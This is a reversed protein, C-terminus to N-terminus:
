RRRGSDGSEASDGRHYPLDPSKYQFRKNESASFGAMIPTLASAVGFVKYLTGMEDPSMLRTYDFQLRTIGEETECLEALQKFRERIGLEALFFAQPVVSFPIVENCVVPESLTSVEGSEPPPAPDERRNLAQANVFEVARLLADFDVDATVDALGPSALLPEFKHNRIARASLRAPAADSSYDIVVAAGGFPSSRICEAVRMMTMVAEPCIELVAEDGTRGAQSSISSEAAREAAPKFVADELYINSLTRAPAQTMQLSGVADEDQKSVHATETAADTVSVSPSSQDTREAKAEPVVSVLIERWHRVPESPHAEADKSSHQFQLVPLADFFEQALVLPAHGAKSVSTLADDVTDHWAVQLGEFRELAQKQADRFVPSVEVFRVGIKQVYQPRIKTIARLADAMMTGRGPGLEVIQVVQNNSMLKQEGINAFIQDLMTVCWVGVLEGFVQSVEPATVFDGRSGLVHEQKTYYGFESDRLCRRMFEGVSLPGRGGRGSSIVDILKAALPTSNEAARFQHTKVVASTGSGARRASPLTAANELPSRDVSVVRSFDCDDVQAPERKLGTDSKLPTKMPEEGSRVKETGPTLGDETLDNGAASCVWSRSGVTRKEACLRTFADLFGRRGSPRLSSLVESRRNLLRM